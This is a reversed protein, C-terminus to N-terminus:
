ASSPRSGCGPRCASAAPGTVRSPALGCIETYTSFGIGRAIGKARQEAREREFADLDVASWSSTWRARTTARTTSSASRWRAPFDEKPIFNKRRLELRDMGLEDALQDMCVEIM